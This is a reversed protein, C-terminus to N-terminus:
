SIKQKIMTDWAFRLKKSLAILFGYITIFFIGIVEIEKLAKESYEKYNTGGVYM